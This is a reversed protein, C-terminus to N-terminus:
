EKKQFGFYCSYCYEKSYIVGQAGCLAECARQAFAGDDDALLAQQLARELGSTSPCSM